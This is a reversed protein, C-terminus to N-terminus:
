CDLKEIYTQLAVSLGIIIIAAHTGFVLSLAETKHIQKLGCVHAGLPLISRTQKGNQEETARM